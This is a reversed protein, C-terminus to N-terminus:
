FNYPDVDIKIRVSKPIKISKIVNHIDLSTHRNKPSVILVLNKHYNSIKSIPPSIPGLTKSDKFSCRKKIEKSWQECLDIKKSSVIINIMRSFPPLNHKKRYELETQIFQDYDNNILTKLINHSPNYEQAYVVGTNSTRGIRGSVQQLIQFAKENSRIDFSDDLGCDVIGLFDLGDFNYGKALIQTTIIIDIKKEHFNKIITPGLKSNMEDRSVSVVTKGKFTSTMEERIREIGPGCYLMTQTKCESCSLDHKEYHCYHCLLKNLDKYYVLSTTCNICKAKHGCMSCISVPAYGKRNLFLMVQEGDDLRKQILQLLTPSIWKNKHLKEKRMDIVNIDPMRAQGYRNTLKALGYRNCYANHMSELSPTASGLVVKIQPKIKNIYVAIDRANYTPTDNQKYSQDHEEDVIILGLNQYPLLMASRTGILLCPQNCLINAMIQIKNKNSVSSNWIVPNLGYHKNFHRILEKTLNIEPLLMIAQMGKQLTQWILHCYIETKGSGTVGYVLCPKQNTNIINLANNQESNLSRLIPEGCKAGCPQINSLDVPLIMKAVASDHTCYYRSIFSICEMLHQPVSIALARIINKTQGQYDGQGCIIGILKKGRYDVEVLSGPNLQWLSHYDMPPVGNIPILVRYIWHHM